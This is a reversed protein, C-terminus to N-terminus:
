SNRGLLRNTSENLSSVFQDPLTRGTLTERTGDLESSVFEDSGSRNKNSATNNQLIEKIAKKVIAELNKKIESDLVSGNIAKGVEKVADLM